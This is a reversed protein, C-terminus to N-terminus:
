AKIKPMARTKKVTESKGERVRQWYHFSYTEREREKERGIERERESARESQTQEKWREHSAAREKRESALQRCIFVSSKKNSVDSKDKKSNRERTEQV